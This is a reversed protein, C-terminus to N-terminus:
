FNSLLNTTARVVEMFVSKVDGEEPSGLKNNLASSFTAELKGCGGIEQEIRRAPVKDKEKDEVRNKDAFPNYTRIDEVQQRKAPRPNDDSKELEDLEDLSAESTDLDIPPNDLKVRSGTTWRTSGAPAESMRKKKEKGAPSGHTRTRQLKAPRQDEDSANSATESIDLDMPEVSPATLQNSAAGRKRNSARRASRTCAAPSDSTPTPPHARMSFIPTSKLPITPADPSPKTHNRKKKLDSLSPITRTPDRLEKRSLSEAIYQM